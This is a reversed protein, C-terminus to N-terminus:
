RHPGDRDPGPPPPPTWNGIQGFRTATNPMHGNTTPPFPRGTPRAPPQTGGIATMLADLGAQVGRRVDPDDVPNRGVTLTTMPATGHKIYAIDRDPLVLACAEVPLDLPHIVEAVAAADLLSQYDLDPRHLFRETVAFPGIPTQGMRMLTTLGTEAAITRVM